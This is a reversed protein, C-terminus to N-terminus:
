ADELGPIPTTPRLRRLCIGCPPIGKSIWKRTMRVKYQDCGECEPNRCILDFYRNQQPAPGSTARKTPAGAPVETRSKAPARLASMDIAGHPFDGLEAAIVVFEFALEPGVPTETMKGIFGFRTAIEAFRKEHGDENDLAVHILEHLLSRLIEAPDSLIPSIFVHNVDDKSVFKATTQALIVKNEPANGVPFGISVHIKEPLEYDVEVFRPRFVNIAAELWSERTQGTTEISATM